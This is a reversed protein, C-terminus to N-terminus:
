AVEYGLDALADVHSKYPVFAVEGFDVHEGAEDCPFIMTESTRYDPIYVPLDVASVVVFPGSKELPPELKFLQADGHWGTIDRVKTAVKKVTEEESM